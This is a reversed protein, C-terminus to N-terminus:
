RIAHPSLSPSKGLVYRDAFHLVGRSFPSATTFGSAMGAMNRSMFNEVFELPLFPWQKLSERGCDRLDFIRGNYFFEILEMWARLVQSIRESYKQLAEELNRTALEEDLISASQLAIMMGPSLMPDVFGFADGISVWNKGCGRTSILQYNGYTAVDSIRRLIGTERRLQPNLRIAAELREAPDKGLRSLPEHDMVIGFSMKGRLPIRWSWGHELRNIRVQGAPTPEEFGEFHAFHSLDKRPGLIAQIGFLRATVRRRGTADIVLDPQQGKWCDILQMTEPTLQVRDEQASIEARAIIKKAGSAMASEQLIRDFAPRPVNYAYQPYSRSLSTFSFSFENEEATYFTVGPKYVGIKAVQDEIGLRRLIPIVGPVLSEGVLMEPRAEEDFLLVDHGRRSLLAAAVSGSPGGGLLAIKM